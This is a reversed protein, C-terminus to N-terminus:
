EGSSQFVGYVVGILNEPTVYSDDEVANNLGQSRWGYRTKRTLQHIVRGKHPSVFAVIMGAELEEFPIPTTVIVSNDGFIPAMSEGTGSSAARGTEQRELAVAANLVERRSASSTPSPGAEPMSACGSALIVLAGACLRSVFPFAM